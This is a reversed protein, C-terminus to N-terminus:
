KTRQYYLDITVWLGRLLPWCSARDGAVAQYNGFGFAINNGDVAEKSLEKTGVRPL